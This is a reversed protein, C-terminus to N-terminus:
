LDCKQLLELAWYNLHRTKAVMLAKKPTEVIDPWKPIAVFGEFVEWFPAHIPM